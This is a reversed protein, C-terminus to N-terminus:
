GTRDSNPSRMCFTSWSMVVATSNRAFRSRFRLRQRLFICRRRSTNTCLAGSGMSLSRNYMDISENTNTVNADPRPTLLPKNGSKTSNRRKRRM